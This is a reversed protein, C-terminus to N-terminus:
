AEDSIQERLEHDLEEIQLTELQKKVPSRKIPSVFEKKKKIRLREARNSPHHLHNM